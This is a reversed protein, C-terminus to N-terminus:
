MSHHVVRHAFTQGKKTTVQLIYLGDAIDQEINLDVLNNGKILVHDKSLIIRGHLDLLQIKVSEEISSAIAINLLQDFPDPYIKEISLLPLPIAETQKESENAPSLLDLDTSNSSSLENNTDPSSTFQDVPGPTEVKGNCVVFNYKPSDYCYKVFVCIRRICQDPTDMDQIVDICYEGSCTEGLSPEIPVTYQTFNVSAFELEACAEDPQSILNLNITHQTLDV